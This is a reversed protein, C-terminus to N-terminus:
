QEVKWLSAWLRWLPRSLGIRREALALALIVFVAFAIGPSQTALLTAVAPLVIFVLWFSTVYAYERREASSSRLLKPLNGSGFVYLPIGVILLLAVAVVAAGLDRQPRGDALSLGFGFAIFIAFVIALGGLVKALGLVFKSRKVTM